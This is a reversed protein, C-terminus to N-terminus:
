KIYNNKNKFIDVFVSHLSLWFAYQWFIGIAKAPGLIDLSQNKKRSKSIEGVKWIVVSM